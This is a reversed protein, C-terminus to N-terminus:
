SLKKVTLKDNKILKKYKKYQAKSIKVTTKKTLGNFAKKNMTKINKSKITITKLNNKANKFANAKIKTVKYTAGNVKITSPIVVKKASKKIGAVAVTKSKNTTETVEYTVSDVTKTDGVSLAKLKKTPTAKVSKAAATNYGSPVQKYVSGKWTLGGMAVAASYRVQIVPCVAATKTYTRWGSASLLGNPAVGAVDYQYYGPTRLFYNVFTQGAYKKKTLNKNALTAETAEFQRTEIVSNTTDGGYLGYKPNNMENVSLVYVNDTTSAGGLSHSSGSGSNDLTVPLITTQQKADFADNMFDKNLYSRLASSEWTAGFMTPEYAMSFLAKNAMLVILDNAPDFELVRWEIPGTGGDAQLAYTGFNVLSWTVYTKYNLSSTAVTPGSIDTHELAPDVDKTYSVNQITLDVIEFSGDGAQLIGFPRGMTGQAEVADSVTLTTYKDQGNIRYHFSLNFSNVRYETSTNAVAWDIQYNGGEGGIKSMQATTPVFWIANVDPYMAGISVYKADTLHVEVTNNVAAPLAVPTSTQNLGLPGDYTTSNVVYQTVNNSSTNTVTWSSGDATLALKMWSYDSILKVLETIELKTVIINNNYWSADSMKFKGGSGSGSAVFSITKEGEGDDYNVTYKLTDTEGVGFVNPTIFPGGYTTTDFTPLGLVTVGAPKATYEPQASYTKTIEYSLLTGNNLKEGQTLPISVNSSKAVGTKEQLAGENNLFTFKYSCRAIPAISFSLTADGYQQRAYNVNSIRADSKCEYIGVSQTTIGEYPSSPFSSSHSQEAGAKLGNGEITLTRENWGNCKIIVIYKAIESAGNNKVKFTYECDSSNKSCDLDIIELNTSNSAPTVSVAEAKSIVIGQGCQLILALTLFIGMIRKWIKM